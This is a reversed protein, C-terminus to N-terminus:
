KSAPASDLGDKPPKVKKSPNAKEALARYVANFTNIERPSITTRELFALAAKAIDPTM